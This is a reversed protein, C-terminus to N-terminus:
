KRNGACENEDDSDPESNPQRGAKGSVTNTEPMPVHKIVYKYFYYLRPVSLPVLEAIVNSIGLTLPIFLMLAMILYRLVYSQTLLGKAVRENRRRLARQGVYGLAFFNGCSVVAGVTGGVLIRVDAFVAAVVGAIVAAAAYWVLMPVLEDVVVYRARLLRVRGKIETMTM